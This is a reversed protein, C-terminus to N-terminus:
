RRWGVVASNLGHNGDHGKPRQCTYYRMGMKRSRARCYNRPPRPPQEQKWTLDITGVMDMLSPPVVAEHDGLHDHPRSCVVHLHECKFIFVDTCRVYSM